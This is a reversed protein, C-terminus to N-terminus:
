HDGVLRVVLAGNTQAHGGLNDYIGLSDRASADYTLSLKGPRFAVGTGSPFSASWPTATPGCDIATTAGGQATHGNNQTASVSVSATGPQDCVVTGQVTVVGNHDVSGRADVTAAVSTLPPATNQVNLTVPGQAGGVGDVMFHYTTGATVHLRAAAQSPDWNYANCAILDLAVAALEPEFDSATYVLIWADVTPTFAYWISNGDGCSPDDAARTADVTSSSDSFPVSTIVTASDFDDNSPVAAQAPMATFLGAALVLLGTVVARRSGPM